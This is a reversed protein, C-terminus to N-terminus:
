DNVARPFCDYILNTGDTFSEVSDFRRILQPYLIDAVNQADQKDQSYITIRVPKPQRVDDLSM